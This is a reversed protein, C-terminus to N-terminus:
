WRLRQLADVAAKKVSEPYPLYGIYLLHDFASKDGLRGLGNVVALTVQEDYVRGQETETNILQLYLSLAHAAETSGMAGLLAISELFNSKPVQGRNYQLQYDYFHRVALPSARQWVRETLERAAATRLATVAAQDATTTAKYNLGVELAAEALEARKEPTLTSEALGVALAAAKDVAANDRIVKALFTALDGRLLAMSAGTRETISKSFGATYVAFLYPFSSPDGLQGLATVAADLVAADPQVGSKYLGMQADLYSNLAAVVKADGKGVDALAQLIPVRVTNERYVKFLEWLNGAAPVYKYKRVMNVSLIAIDKLLADTGLLSANNLVFELATNYLPGMDVGAVTAADKLIELKTQLGSRAFNRRYTDILETADQALATGCALVLCALAITPGKRM